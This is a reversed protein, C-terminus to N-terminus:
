SNSWPLVGAYKSLKTFILYLYVSFAQAASFHIILLAPRRMLFNPFCVVMKRVLCAIKKILSKIINM